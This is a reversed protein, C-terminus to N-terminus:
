AVQRRVESKRTYDRDTLWGDDLLYETKESLIKKGREKSNFVVRVRADGEGKKQYVATGKQTTKEGLGTDKEELVVDATFDKVGQGRRELAELVQDVSSDASLKNGGTVQAPEGGVPAGSPAPVTGDQALLAGVVMAAIRVLVTVMASRIGGILGGM